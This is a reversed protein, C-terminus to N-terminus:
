KSPFAPGIYVELTDIFVVVIQEPVIVARYSPVSVLARALEVSGSM